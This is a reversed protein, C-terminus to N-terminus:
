EAGALFLDAAIEDVTRIGGLKRVQQLFSEYGSLWLHAYCDHMGLAVFDDREILELAERQWKLLDMGESYLAFDDKRVPIRALRGRLQPRAGIGLSKPSSMLWEFNHWCLLTDRLELTVQSKPPRYGKIRYDAKRCAPLQRFRTHDYSHFAICHGDAEIKDRVKELLAGLVNYTVRLGLQGEIRLM